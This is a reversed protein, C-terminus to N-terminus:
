RRRASWPITPMLKSASHGGKSQSRIDEKAANLHSRALGFAEAYSKYDRSQKHKIAQIAFAIADSNGLDVERHLDDATLKTFKKKGKIIVCGDGCGCYKYQRYSSVTEEAQLTHIVRDGCNPDREYVTVAGATRDKTLSDLYFVEEESYVIEKIGKLTVSASILTGGTTRVGIMVQRGEDNSDNARFGLVCNRRVALPMPSSSGTPIISAGKSAYLGLTSIDIASWPTKEVPIEKSCAYAEKISEIHWPTYFCKDATCICAYEITGEWDGSHWLLKRAANIWNLAECSGSVFGDTFELEDLMQKLTVKM